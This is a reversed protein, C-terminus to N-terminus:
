FSEEYLYSYRVLLSITSHKWLAGDTARNLPGDHVTRGRSHGRHRRTRVYILNCQTVSESWLVRYCDISQFLM